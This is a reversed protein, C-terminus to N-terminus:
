RNFQVARASINQLSSWFKKLYILMMFYCIVNMKLFNAHEYKKAHLVFNM